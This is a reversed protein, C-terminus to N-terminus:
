GPAARQSLTSIIQNSFQLNLCKALLLETEVQFFGCTLTNTKLQQQPKREPLIVATFYLHSM